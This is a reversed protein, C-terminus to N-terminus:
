AFERLSEHIGKHIEYWYELSAERKDREFKDLWTLLDPSSDGEIEHKRRLFSHVFDITRESEWFVSANRSNIRAATIAVRDLYLEKMGFLKGVIEPLMEEAWARHFRCMGLNDMVLEGRFREANIRGLSRPPVFDNGYYMFYKGMIAMPSIAGPTWYQNPVMWGRRAFAIYLFPDLVQKGKERAWHRAAKRAGESLDLRGRRQVIGDLLQMGLDANHKSDTEISFGATSFVPRGQIGLEEPTVLGQDLCEMMWSLVGGVSIGDFGYTDAHHNLREAARQDFVGCLPGMTQYPEYDKKFEGRMKKCVAPCPEGCTAQHRPVITEENFQRLYHDVIFRRNLDLRQDETMYITRYNFALIRGGITAYNVGLTGGTEFKPDHRYKTTAELDKAGLKRDYKQQFWEDAVKRNRFDDDAYTGGYIIAAIGHQQLMKSGFGGRGAWTDIATLRGATIPVSAIAGFDTAEAAPGVALIRPSTQYREGFRDFVHDMLAYVGGREKRWTEHLDIPEILVEIEEGHIRNLCLISPTPAKGIISLVNIGLNDFVLAAGGMTSVYFGGWCPSFGSVILRNSGPFISGALLGAGINLSNHKGSLHLGLDVPGFFGGLPYRKARYFGSDAAVFLVKLHNEM